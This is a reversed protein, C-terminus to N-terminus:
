AIKERQRVVRSELTIEPDFLFRVLLGSWSRHSHLGAYLEPAMAAVQPLRNWPVGILDHHEVHFGANFVFMNTPGYYSYTEQGDAFTFHEQITRAGLPHLGLSFCNALLLYAIAGGGLVSAVAAIFVAQLICNAVFDRDFLSVGKMRMPRVAQLVPGLALWFAKAVPNSGVLRCEWRSAVDADRAPDGQHRHHLRHYKRFPAAVPLVLPTAAALGLMRNHLRRRFVLDHTCEHLLAWLALAVFAGLFYALPLIVWWPMTAATAALGMQITWTLAIWAATGPNRGILTRIQPHRALIAKGRDMHPNPSIGGGRDVDTAERTLM